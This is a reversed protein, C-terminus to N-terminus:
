RKGNKDGQFINMYQYSIMQENKFVAHVILPMVDKIRLFSEYNFSKDYYNIITSLATGHTGIIINMGQHKKLIDNLCSINRMQVQFLSEGGILKFDFDMWQKKAYSQFDEIWNNSITREKLIPELNINLNITEAFHSITDIARKYPSSYAVEIQKDILFNTVLKRDELGKHTLERSQDDHNQHNPEAHRIFYVHTM